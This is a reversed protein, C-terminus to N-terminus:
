AARGKSQRATCLIKTYSSTKIYKELADGLLEKLAPRDLRSTSSKIVSLSFITGFLKKRRRRKVEKGLAEEIDKAISVISRSEGFADALVDIPLDKIVKASGNIMVQTITDTEM